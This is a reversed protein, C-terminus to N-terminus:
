SAQPGAVIMEETQNEVAKCLSEMKYKHQEQGPGSPSGNKGSYSSLGSKM